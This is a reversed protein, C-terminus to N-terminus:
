DEDQRPTLNAKGVLKLYKKAPVPKLLWAIHSHYRDEVHQLDEPTDAGVESSTYDSALLSPNKSKQPDTIIRWADEYNIMDPSPTSAIASPARPPITKVAEVVVHSVLRLQPCDAAQIGLFKRFGDLFSQVTVSDLGDTFESIGNIRLLSKAREITATPKIDPMNAVLQNLDLQEVIRSTVVKSRPDMVKDRRGILIPFISQVRTSSENRKRAHLCESAMIWELLVNDVINPNHDRMTEIADLSFLPMIVSSKILANSFEEDLRRGKSLRFLDLFVDITCGTVDYNSMADFIQRALPQDFTWRPNEGRVKDPWRYSLFIDYQAIPNVENVWSGFGTKLQQANLVMRGPFKLGDRNEIGRKINKLPVLVISPSEDNELRHAWRNSQYVEERAEDELLPILVMVSLGKMCEAISQEVIELIKRTVVFPTSGQVDVRICNMRPINALRFFRSGFSLIGVQKFIYSSTRDWVGDKSTSQAWMIIKGLVREYLGNPYFGKGILECKDLYSRDEIAKSLTFFLYSTQTSSDMNGWKGEASILEANSCQPLLSPVIYHAENRTDDASIMPVILGYQIMLSLLREIEPVRDVWLAQLLSAVLIGDSVLDRWNQVHQPKSIQSMIHEPLRHRTRDGRDGLHNCIIMTAPTILYSIVDMIILDNLGPEDIYMCVGMQDLFKLLLPVHDRRVNCSNAVGHFDQIGLFNKNMGKLKDVCLLWELPVKKHTYDAQQIANEICSMVHLMVPDGRGLKNDIPFFCLNCRGNAGEGQLNELRFNWPPFSKFEENLIFDIEHHQRSDTVCDKHTGVLIYPACKGTDCDYTHMYISNMWFKLKSLCGAMEEERHVSLWEMNFCLVYVGYSSLLLHHITTFIDQGGYDYVSVILSTTTEISEALCGRYIDEDLTTFFSNQSVEPEETDESSSLGPEAVGMSLGPISTNSDASQIEAMQNVNLVADGSEIAAFTDNNDILQVGRLRSLSGDVISETDGAERIIANRALAAEYERERGECRQWEGSAGEAAFGFQNVMCTLEEVGRTSDTNQFPDGIMSRTFATKGARGAGVIM